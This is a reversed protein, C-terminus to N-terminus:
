IKSKKKVLISKKLKEPSLPYYGYKLKVTKAEYNLILKATINSIVAFNLM